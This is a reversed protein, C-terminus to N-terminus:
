GYRAYLSSSAVGLLIALVFLVSRTEAISLYTDLFVLIVLRVRESVALLGTGGLVAGLTFSWVAEYSVLRVHAVVLGGGVGFGLMGALILAQSPPERFTSTALGVLFSSLVVCGIVIGVAEFRPPGVPEGTSSDDPTSPAGAAASQGGDANSPGSEAPQTASRDTGDPM